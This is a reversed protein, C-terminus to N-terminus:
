EGTTGSVAQAAKKKAVLNQFGVISDIIRGAEDRVEADNLLDKDALDEAGAVGALVLELAHTRKDAGSTAHKIGEVAQEAKAVAPCALGVVSLTLRGLTKWKM